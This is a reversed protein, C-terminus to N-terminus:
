SPLGEQWLGEALVDTVKANKTFFKGSSMVQQWCFGRRAMVKKETAPALARKPFFPIALLV